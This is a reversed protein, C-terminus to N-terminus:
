LLDKIRTKKVLIVSPVSAALLLPAMCVAAGVLEPVALYQWIRETSLHLMTKVAWVTLPVSLLMGAIGLVAAQAVIMFGLKRVSMGNIRLLMYKKLNLQTKFLLQGGTCCLIMGGALFTLAACFAAILWKLQRYTELERHLDQIRMHPVEGGYSKVLESMETYDAELDIYLRLRNYTDNMGLDRFADHLTYIYYSEGMTAENEFWGTYTGLVAGVTVAKDKRQYERQLTERNVGGNYGKESEARTLTITDGAHLLHNEYAGASGPRCWDKRIGGDTQTTLTFPPAVLIIEEGSRLKELNINGETVYPQLALLENDNYGVVKTKVLRKDGYEFIDRIKDVDGAPNYVGDEVYDSADLYRDFQEKDLLLKIKNNEKYASIRELGKEMKLRSLFEESAGDKEYTDDQYVAEDMFIEPERVVTALEMDYDFPMKGEYQKYTAEAAFYNKYVIASGLFAGNFALLLILLGGVMRSTRFESVMLRWFTFKKPKM